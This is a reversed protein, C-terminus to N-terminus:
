PLELTKLYRDISVLEERNFRFIVYDSAKKSLYIKWEDRSNLIKDVDAAVLPTLLGFKNERYYRKDIYVDGRGSSLLKSTVASKSDGINFEDWGGKTITKDEIFWNPNVEYLAGMIILRGEPVFWAGAIFILPIVLWFVKSNKVIHM